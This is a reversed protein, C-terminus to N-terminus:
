RKDVMRLIDMTVGAVVANAVMYGTVWWMNAAFELVLQNSWRYVIALILLYGTGMFLVSYGIFQVTFRAAIKLIM